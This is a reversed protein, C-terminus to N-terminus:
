LHGVPLVLQFNPEVNDVRWERAAPSRNVICTIVDCEDYAGPEILLDYYLPSFHSEQEGKKGVVVVKRVINDGRNAVLTIVLAATRTEPDGM